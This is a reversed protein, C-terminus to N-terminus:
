QPACIHLGRRLFRMVRLKNIASLAWRFWLKYFFTFFTSAARSVCLVRWGCVVTWGACVSFVFPRNDDVAVYATHTQFPTYGCLLEFILVGLSWLDAEFSYADKRLVEPAM